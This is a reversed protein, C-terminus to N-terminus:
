NWNVLAGLALGPELAWAARLPVDLLVVRGSAELDQPDDVLLQRPLLDLCGEHRRWGRRRLVLM